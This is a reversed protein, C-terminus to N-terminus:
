RRHGQPFSMLRLVPLARVRPDGHNIVPNVLALGSVLPGHQEASGCRWRPAWRCAPSFCRTVNPTCPRSPMMSAPTGTLGPM